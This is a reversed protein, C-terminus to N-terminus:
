GQTPYVILAAPTYGWTRVILRWNAAISKIEGDLVHFYKTYIATIASKNQKCPLIRSPFIIIESQKM